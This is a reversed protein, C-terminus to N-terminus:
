GPAPQGIVAAAPASPISLAAALATAALAPVRIRM